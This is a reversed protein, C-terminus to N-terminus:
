CLSQPHIYPSIALRAGDFPSFFVGSQNGLGDPTITWQLIHKDSSTPSDVSREGHLRAVRAAALHSAAAPRRRLSPSVAAIPRGATQPLRARRPETRSCSSLSSAPPPYVAGGCRRWLVCADSTCCRLPAAWLYCVCEPTRPESFFQPKYKLNRHRGTLFTSKFLVSFGLINHLQRPWFWLYISHLHQIQVRIM